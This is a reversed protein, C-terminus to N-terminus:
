SGNVLGVAGAVAAVGGLWIPDRGDFAVALGALLFTLGDFILTEGRFTGNLLAIATDAM